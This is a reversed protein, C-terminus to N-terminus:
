AGLDGWQYMVAAIAALGATETRLIRPGLSVTVAGYETAQKIEKCDWGGEPGIFIYIPKDKYNDAAPDNLLAKLSRGGEEWPILLLNDSSLTKLLDRLGQPMAVMPVVSRRCQKVAEVAVKQWRERREEKKRGELRVISREAELPVIGKVGLEAAKQIIFDMKDGKPIGQVLQINLPSERTETILGGVTIGAHDKALYKIVGEYELGTGNFLQVADGPKLRLVHALHRYEEADVVVEPGSFTEGPVYFRHM